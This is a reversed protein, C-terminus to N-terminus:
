RIDSHLYRNLRSVIERTKVNRGSYTCMLAYESGFLCGSHIDRTPTGNDMAGYEAGRRYKARDNVMNACRRNKANQFRKGYESAKQYYQLGRPARFLFRIYSFGYVDILLLILIYDRMHAFISVRYSTLMRIAQPSYTLLNIQPADIAGEQIDAPARQLLKPPTEPTTNAISDLSSPSEQSM